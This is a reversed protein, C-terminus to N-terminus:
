QTARRLTYRTEFAIEGDKLMDMWIVMSEGTRKFHVGHMHLDAHSDATGVNGDCLFHLDGDVESTVATLRPQNGLQCFHSAVLTGHDLHYVTTMETPTGVKLREVVVGGRSTVDFEWGFMGEDGGDVVWEGKLEKLYELAAQGDPPSQAVPARNTACAALSLVVVILSVAQVRSKTLPM